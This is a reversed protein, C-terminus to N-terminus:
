TVGGRRGRRTTVSAETWLLAQIPMCGTETSRRSLYTRRPLTKAWRTGRRGKARWRHRRRPVTRRARALQRRREGRNREHLKIRRSDRRRKEKSGIANGRGREGRTGKAGRRKRDLRPRVTSVGSWVGAHCASM